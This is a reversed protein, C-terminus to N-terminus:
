LPNQDGPSQARRWAVPAEGEAQGRARRSM